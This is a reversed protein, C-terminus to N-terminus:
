NRQKRRMALRYCFFPSVLKIAPLKAQATRHYLELFGSHRALRGTTVRSDAKISAVRCRLDHDTTDELQIVVRCMAHSCRATILLAAVTSGPWAGACSVLRSKAPLHCSVEDKTRQVMLLHKLLVSLETLNSSGRM